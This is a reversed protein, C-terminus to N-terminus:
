KAGGKLAKVGCPKRQALDAMFMDRIDGRFTSDDRLTQVDTELASEILWEVTVPRMYEAREALAEALKRPLTFTTVAESRSGTLKRHPRKSRSVSKTKQM